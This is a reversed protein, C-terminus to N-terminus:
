RKQTGYKYIGQVSHICYLVYMRRQRPNLYGCARKLLNPHGLGPRKPKSGKGIFAGTLDPKTVQRIRRSLVELTQGLLSIHALRHKGRDGSISMKHSLPGDQLIMEGSPLLFFFFFDTSYQSVCRRGADM